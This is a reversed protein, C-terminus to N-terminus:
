FSRPFYSPTWAGDSKARKFSIEPESALTRKRKVHHYYWSSYKQTAVVHAKWGGACLRFEPFRSCMSDNFRQELMQGAKGWTAPAIGDDRYDSFLAHAYEYVEILRSGSVIDGNAHQLFRASVNIDNSIDTKGKKGSGVSGRDKREDAGENWQARKWNKIAPFASSDLEHPLHSTSTSPISANSAELYTKIQALAQEHALRSVCKLYPYLIM